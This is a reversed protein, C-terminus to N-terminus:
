ATIRVNSKGEDGVCPKYKRHFQDYNMTTSDTADVHRKLVVHNTKVKAVVMYVVGAHRDDKWVSGKVVPPRDVKRLEDRLKLLEANSSQKRMQKNRRTLNYPSRSIM